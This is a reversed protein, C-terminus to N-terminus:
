RQARFVQLAQAIEAVVATWDGARPQRYLQVSPYWPSSAGENRWRWDASAPLMVLTTRGLAGALHAITNDATVVCDVAEILAATEDLDELADTPAIAQSRCEATLAAFEQEGSRQLNVWKAQAIEFLPVLSAPPISRLAHHTKLTGGRWAIAAAIMGATAGVRTRWYAVRAADARLFGRHRPFAADDRRLLRPLSGIAIQARIAPYQALWARNGDRAAGHVRAAPFSRAFLAALRQECEVICSINRELLDPVCSAFMLEDGIGQEGYVLLAGDGLAEGQWVPYPFKRPPAGTGRENRQEYDDWARGYDGRGLLVLGRNWRYEAVEPRAAIL